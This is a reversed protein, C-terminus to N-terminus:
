QLVRTAKQTNFSELVTLIMELMLTRECTNLQLLSSSSVEGGGLGGGGGFFFFSWVLRTKAHVTYKKLKVKIQKQLQAKM